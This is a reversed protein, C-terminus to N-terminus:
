KDTRILIWHAHFWENWYKPDSESDWELTSHWDGSSLKSMIQQDLYRHPIAQGGHYIREHLEIVGVQRQYLIWRPPATNLQDGLQEITKGGVTDFFTQIYGHWPTVGCFYNAYPYPLSLLEPRAGDTQIARCVAQVFQLPRREVFMPGYLPHKIWQRGTFMPGEVYSHWSFPVLVKFSITSAIMVSLCVIFATRLWSNQLSVPFALPLLLLFLGVPTFLGHFAGGSSMSASLLQGVPILILLETPSWTSLPRSGVAVQIARMFVFASLALGLLMCAGCLAVAPDETGMFRIVFWAAFLMPILAYAVRALSGKGNSVRRHFLVFHISAILVVVAALNILYAPTILLRKATKLPFLLPARLVSFLGGKSGAAQFVSNLAYDHVTDGTLSVVIFLTLVAAFLILVISIVRKRTLTVLVIFVITLILAMGDNLRTTIALGSLIGLSLPIGFDNVKSGTGAKLHLVLIISFVSMCDALVHYDDFRYAVFLTGLSFTCTLLLGKQWDPILLYRAIWRLGVLFVIMELLAPIKSVLWGEGFLLMNSKTQLIFLPQLVLHMDAYLRAGGRVAKAYWFWAGDGLPHTNLILAIGFLLCFVFSFNQWLATSFDKPQAPPAPM